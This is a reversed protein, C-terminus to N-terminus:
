ARPALPFPPPARLPRRGKERGARARVRLSARLLISGLDNLRPLTGHAVVFSAEGQDLQQDDHHDDSNQGSDADRIETVAFLARHDGGHLGVQTVQHGRLLSVVGVALHIVATGPGVGCHGEIWRLVDRDGQAADGRCAPGGGCRVRIGRPGAGEEETRRGRDGWGSDLTSYGARRLARLTPTASGARDSRVSSSTLRPKTVDAATMRTPSVVIRSVPPSRWSVIRGRPASQSPLVATKTMKPMDTSCRSTM